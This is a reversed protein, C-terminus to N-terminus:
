ELQHIHNFGFIRTYLVRLPQIGKGLVLHTEGVCPCTFMFSTRAGQGDWPGSCPVLSDIGVGMEDRRRVLQCRDRLDIVYMSVYAPDSPARPPYPSGLSAM